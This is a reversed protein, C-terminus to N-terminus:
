KPTNELAYKAMYFADVIDSVPSSVKTTSQGMINMLDVGTETVFAGYMSEKDANGKGTAFKKVTTPPFIGTTTKIIPNTEWEKWIKHKLIGCNEALNFVKGKSGMSYGEIGIIKPAGDKSMCNMAWESIFDYRFQETYWDSFPTGFINDGFKDQYKKVGTIFFFRCNEFCFEGDMDDWTCIAPSTLSYDIGAIKM